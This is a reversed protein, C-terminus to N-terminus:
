VRLGLGEVWGRVMSGVIGFGLGWIGVRCGVGFGIRCGVRVVLGKGRFGGGGALHYLQRQCFGSQLRCGSGQVRSESGLVRFGSGQM